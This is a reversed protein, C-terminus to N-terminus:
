PVDPVNGSLFDLEFREFDDRRINFYIAAEILKHRKNLYDLAGDEIRVLDNIPYSTKQTHANTPGPVTYREPDESPYKFLDKNWIYRGSPIWHWQVKAKGTSENITDVQGVRFSSSDGQRGGRFVIAGPVIDHGLWNKM